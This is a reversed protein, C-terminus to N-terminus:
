SASASHSHSGGGRAERAASRAAAAEASGKLAALAGVVAREWYGAVLDGWREGLWWLDTGLEGAYELETAAGGDVDRLRFRETVFPVPGRLLRFAIEDPRAFTVSEVTVTTIRGVKTRHAAVVMDAGRELIEVKARLERPPTASLYPVAIHDFVIERPAAVRVTRPGLPRIRRGWGIDLTLRGVSMLAVGVAVLALPMAAVAVIAKM